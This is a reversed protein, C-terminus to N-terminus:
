RQRYSDRIADLWPGPGVYRAKPPLQDALEDFSGPASAASVLRAVAANWGERQKPQEPARTRLAAELQELTM